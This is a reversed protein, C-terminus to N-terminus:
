SKCRAKLSDQPSCEHHHLEGDILDEKELLIKSNNRNSHHEGIQTCAFPFTFFLSNTFKM